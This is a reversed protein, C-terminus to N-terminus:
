LFRELSSVGLVSRGKLTRGNGCLGLSPHSLDWCMKLSLCKTSNTDWRRRVLESIPGWGIYFVMYIPDKWSSTCLSKSVYQVFVIVTQIRNKWWFCCHNEAPLNRCWVKWSELGSFAFFASHREHLKQVQLRTCNRLPKPKILGQDSVFFTHFWGVFVCDKNFQLTKKRQQTKKQEMTKKLTCRAIEGGTFQHILM